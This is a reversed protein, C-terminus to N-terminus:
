TLIIDGLKNVSLLRTGVKNKEIRCTLIQNMTKMQTDREM